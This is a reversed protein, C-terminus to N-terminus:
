WKLDPIALGKLSFLANISLRNPSIRVESSFLAEPLGIRGTAPMLFAARGPRLAYAGSSGSPPPM